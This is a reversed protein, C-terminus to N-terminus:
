GTVQRPRRRRMQCRFYFKPQIIVVIGYEALSIEFKAHLVIPRLVVNVASQTRFNRRCSISQKIGPYPCIEDIWFCPPDDARKKHITGVQEINTIGIMQVQRLVEQCVVALLHRNGVLTLANIVHAPVYAEFQHKRKPAGSVSNGSILKKCGIRECCPLFSQNYRYVFVM